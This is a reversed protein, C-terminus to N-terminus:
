FCCIGIQGFSQFGTGVTLRLCSLFSKYAHAEPGIRLETHKYTPLLPIVTLDQLVGRGEFDWVSLPTNASWGLGHVQCLETEATVFIFFM